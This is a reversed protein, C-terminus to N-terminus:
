RPPPRYLRSNSNSIATSYGASSASAAPGGNGITRIGSVPMDQSPRSIPASRIGAAITKSTGSIEVTTTDFQLVIRGGEVTQVTWGDLDDGAKVKRSAGSTNALLAVTPKAPIIFTGVLRYDPRPPTAPAASPPPPTYVHRSTYFLPENQLSALHTTTVPADTDLQPVAFSRPPTALLGRVQTGQWIKYILMGMVILNLVALTVTMVRAPSTGTSM